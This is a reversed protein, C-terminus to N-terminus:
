WSAHRVNKDEEWVCLHKGNNLAYVHPSTGKGLEKSINSEMDRVKINGNEQWAIVAKASNWAIAAGRGSAIKQEAQKEACYYIEGNRQWVTSVLGEDGISLDGGDMPCGELKWTGKGSKVPSTWTDGLDLSSLYYIDRSGNLWNRFSIVLKNGNVAINPKCCECVHGDPSKYILRNGAWYRISGGIASFHINNGGTRNDLWAAYFVDQKDATLAMLGEPASGKVANLNGTKYWTKVIHKLRYVNINGDKDMATIMSYNRSSAIQPGRTHGLHMGAVTGVLVPKSFSGGNDASTICYIKEGDGYVMRIVGKSDIAANPQEGSFPPNLTVASVDFAALMLMMLVLILQNPKM